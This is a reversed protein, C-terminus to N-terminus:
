VTEGVRLVETLRDRRRMVVEVLVAIAVVMVGALAVAGIFWWSLATQPVYLGGALVGLGLSPGLFVVMGLGAAAGGLLAAIMLPALESLALWWGLGAPIGLTRLLSLSRAREAAGALVTALLALVALIGLAAVSLSLVNQVGAVMAKGNWSTLWAGRTTVKMGPIDAADLAHGAGPGMVLVTDATLPQALRKALTALDIYMFPGDLYGDPGSAATGVVRVPIDLDNVSIAVDKSALRKAVTADVLVPVRESPGPADQLRDFVASSTPRAVGDIDPLSRLASNYHSDVGLLTVLSTATGLDLHVGTTAQFATAATVGPATALRQFQRDSIAGQGRADAGVRQWSADQQGSHVTESLLGSGVTLAVALTLALVPLAAMSRQARVAGLLGLVGRTRRALAGVLRVPWRYVRLVVITVVAALLLPAMSLLPDVGATRVQLLGRSGLGVVAAVALAVVTVELAIRRGARRRDLELRDRRNAPAARGLRAGSAIVAQVPAALVAVALVLPVLSDTAPGPVLLALSGGIILAVVSALVAEVLFRIGIAAVSAGRARQLLIEPVRRAVLLRSLLILVALTVGLVGVLVISMQATAARAEGAYAATATAFASSVQITADTPPVLRSTDVALAEIESDVREELKQTFLKPDVRVRVTAGLPEGFFDAAKEIGNPMTLVVIDVYRSLDGDGGAPHWMGPLDTWPSPGTSPSTRDVVGVIRLPLTRADPGASSDHLSLVSGVRLSSAAAAATSIVVDVPADASQPGDTPLLGDAITVDRAAADGLLGISVRLRAASQSSLDESPAADTQQSVVTVTTGQSVQQLAPPLHDKIQSAVRLVDGPAVVKDLIWPRQQGVPFQVVLDARPGAQAVAEQAGVDVTHVMLRPGASAITCACAALVIWTCLLVLDRGLRRRLLLVSASATSRWWSGVAETVGQARSM